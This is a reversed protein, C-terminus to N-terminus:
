LYLHLPTPTGMVCSEEERDNYHGHSYKSLGKVRLSNVEGVVGNRWKRMGKTHQALDGGMELRHLPLKQIQAHHGEKLGSLFTYHNM